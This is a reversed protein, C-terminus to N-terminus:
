NRHTHTSSAIIKGNRTDNAQQQQQTQQTINITKTSKDNATQNKLKCVQTYKTHNHKSPPPPPQQPPPPRPPTPPTPNIHPQTQSKPTLIIYKNDPASTKRHMLAVARKDFSNNNSARVKTTSKDCENANSNNNNSSTSINAKSQKACTLLRLLLCVSVCLLLLISCVFSRLLNVCFSLVANKLAVFLVDDVCSEDGDNTRQIRACVSAARVVRMCYLSICHLAICFRRLARM